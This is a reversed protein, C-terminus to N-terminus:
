ARGDQSQQAQLRMMLQQLLKEREERSSAGAIHGVEPFTEQVLKELLSPPLPQCVEELLASLCIQSSVSYNQAELAEGM